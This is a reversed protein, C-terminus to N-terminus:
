MELTIEFNDSIKLTHWDRNFGVNRMSRIRMIDRTTKGDEELKFDVIGDVAGELVKCAWESHVDKMLGSVATSKRISAFPIHRSVWFEVWAKEANFRDLVSFNDTIRLTSPIAPGRLNSQSFSISLDAAKLSEMSIKEGSKLGLTASYWDIIRLKDGLEELNLVLRTLQARINEPPQTSVNYSTNGGSRLWGAAMTISANYWQSAADFEVLVNSGVPVPGTTLDEILPIRPM